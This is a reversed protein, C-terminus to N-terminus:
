SAVSASGSPQITAAVPSATEAGSPFPATLHVTRASFARSKLMANLRLIFPRRPSVAPPRLTRAQALM